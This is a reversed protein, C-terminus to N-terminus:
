ALEASDCIPTRSLVMRWEQDRAVLPVFIGHHDDPLRSRSDLCAQNWTQVIGVCKLGNNVHNIAGYERVFRVRRRRRNATRQLRRLAATDRRIAQYEFNCFALHNVIM